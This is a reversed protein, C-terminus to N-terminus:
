GAAPSPVNRKLNLQYAVAVQSPDNIPNVTGVMWPLAPFDGGDITVRADRRPEVGINTALITMRMEEVDRRNGGYGIGQSYTIAQTYPYDVGGQSLSGDVTPFDGGDIIAALDGAPDIM